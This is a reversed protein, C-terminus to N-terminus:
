CPGMVWRCCSTIPCKKLSSSCLRTPSPRPARAFYPSMMHSAYVLDNQHCYAIAAETVAGRTGEITHVQTGYARIQRLKAEPADAPVFIHSKIGARASYAAVSAGANGSSDEVLEAVGHERAVSLMTATGRDKFSGTPSLYELKAYLEHLPLSGGFQVLHVSPTNGEGLSVRSRPDHVPSPIEDGDARRQTQGGAIYAVDLPSGCDRCAETSMDAPRSNGCRPCRLEIHSM